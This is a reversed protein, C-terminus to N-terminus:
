PAKPSSDSPTTMAVATSENPAPTPNPAAKKTTQDDNKTAAPKKNKVNFGFKKRLDPPVHKEIAEGDIEDNKALETLENELKQKQIKIQLLDLDMDDVGYVLDASSGRIQKGRALDKFMQNIDCSKIHEQEAGDPCTDIPSKGSVDTAFKPVDYMIPM